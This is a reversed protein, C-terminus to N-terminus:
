DLLRVTFDNDNKKNIHICKKGDRSVLVLWPGEGRVYKLSEVEGRFLWREGHYDLKKKAEEHKATIVAYREKKERM